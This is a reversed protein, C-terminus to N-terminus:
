CYAEAVWIFHKQWIKSILFLVEDFKGLRGKKEVALVADCHGNGKKWDCNLNFCSAFLYYLRCIYFVWLGVPVIGNERWECEAVKGQM